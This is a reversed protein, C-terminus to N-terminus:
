IIESSLEIDRIDKMYMINNVIKKGINM